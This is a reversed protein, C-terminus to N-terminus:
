VKVFSSITQLDRYFGKISDKFAIIEKKEEESNTGDYGMDAELDKVKLEILSLRRLVHEQVDTIHALLNKRCQRQFKADEGDDEDKEDNRRNTSDTSPQVKIDSTSQTTISGSTSPGGSGDELPKQGESSTLFSILDGEIKLESGMLNVDMSMSPDPAPSLPPSQPDWSESWLRLDPHDPTNLIKFKYKLSRIVDLVELVLGLLQNTTKMQAISSASQQSTDEETFCNVNNNNHQERRRDVQARHHGASPNTFSFTAMRGKKLWDQDWAFRCSPRGLRPDRCAFCVYSDPVDEETEIEFCFGHQWTLCIECQVMLGSEEKLDCICHLLEDVDDSEHIERVTRADWFPLITNPIPKEEEFYQEQQNSTPSLLLALDYPISPPTRTAMEDLRSSRRSGSAFTRDGSVSDSRGERSESLDRKRKLQKKRQESPEPSSPVMEDGTITQDSSVDTDSDSEEELRVVKKRSMVDFSPRNQTSPLKVQLHSRNSSVSSRKKSLSSASPVTVSESRSLSPVPKKSSSSTSPPASAPTVPVSSVSEVSEQVSSSPDIKIPTPKGKKKKKKKSITSAIIPTSPTTPASEDVSSTSQRTGKSNEIPSVCAPTDVTSSAASTPPSPALTTAPTATLSKSPTTVPTSTSPAITSSTSIAPIISAALEPHYHKIHSQLLKEKRFGKGCGEVSCKFQNHDTEVKFEKPALQDIPVLNKPLPLPLAVPVSCPTISSVQSPIAEPTSLVVGESSTLSTTVTTTGTEIAALSTPPFQLGEYNVPMKKVNGPRIKKQYGDSFIVFLSGDPFIERVTAPYKKNDSWRALVSEGVSFTKTPSKSGAVSSTTATTTSCTPPGNNSGGEATGSAPRLLPSDAEFWQDFRSSWKEFHILITKDDLNLKVIKAPYWHGRSDCADLKFGKKFIIGERNPFSSQGEGGSKLPTSPEKMPSESSVSSEDAVTAPDSM